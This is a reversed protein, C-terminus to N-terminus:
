AASAAKQRAAKRNRIIDSLTTPRQLETAPRRASPPSSGEAVARSKPRGKGGSYGLIRQRTLDALKTMAQSVPLDALDALNKNLTLQVLDDDQQLDAHARYFEDWFKTESQDKQYEGRLKREARQVARDEIKRVAAKPDAFMLTEWDTDDDDEEPENRVPTPPPILKKLAANDQRLLAMERRMLEMESPQREAAPQEGDDDDDDEGLEENTADLPADDEEPWPQGHQLSPHIGKNKRAM